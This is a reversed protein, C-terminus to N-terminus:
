LKLHHMLNYKLESSLYLLFFNFFFFFTFENTFAKWSIAVMKKNVFLRYIGGINDVLIKHYQGNCLVFSVNQYLITEGLWTLDQNESSENNYVLIVQLHFLFIRDFVTVLITLKCPMCWPFNM